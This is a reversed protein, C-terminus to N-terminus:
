FEDKKQRLKKFIALTDDTPIKEKAAFHAIAPEEVRFFPNIKKELGITSPLTCAKTQNDLSHMYSKIKENDPEIIKAFRLNTRTYEHGCYVKTDDPLQKLRQLSHLLQEYTGEFVRGCGASFLTDGCFLLLESSEYFCLHTKTHGPTEMTQFQHTDIYICDGENVPHNIGIIRNDDPGYVKARPFNQLLDRLGATHDPHHHTILINSLELQNERAYELVPRSEGPDVCTFRNSSAHKIIWIYNDKLASVAVVTM